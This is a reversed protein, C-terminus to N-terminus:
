ITANREEITANREERALNFHQLPAVAATYCSASSLFHREGRRSCSSTQVRPAKLISLSSFISVKWFTGKKDSM